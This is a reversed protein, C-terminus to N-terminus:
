TNKLQTIVGPGSEPGKVVTTLVVTLGCEALDLFGRWQQRGMSYIGAVQCTPDVLQQHLPQHAITLVYLSPPKHPGEERTRRILAARVSGRRDKREGPAYVTLDM